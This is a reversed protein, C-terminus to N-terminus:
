RIQAVYELAATNDPATFSLPTQLQWRIRNVCRDYGAPAGCAESVPLYTWTAGGDNSYQLAATMGAPLTTAASGVQLQVAPALTDVLAVGAANSTGGNTITIRYRLVTGPGQSGALSASDALRVTRGITLSPRVVTVTLRGNDSNTPGAVSRATFVLTDRTGFPVNRVAYTVTVVVSDGAALNALRASDPNSGQTVGSGAISVTTLATDPLRRALLDFNDSGSGTNRVTFTVTYNTGHSPLRSAVGSDPTVSISFGTVTLTLRGNDTSSPSAVSRATFTLTDKTGASGAVNYTVTVTATAVPAMSAHRASDPNAGQTVGSGTISVITLATGPLKTTLLDYSDNANGLNQVTFSVTYNTGPLRSVATAPPTVAVGYGPLVVQVLAEDYHVQAGGNATVSAGVLAGFLNAGGSLSIPHTPAYVSFYASGGSITWTSTNTGCAWLGLQPAKSSTNLIGGASINLTNSIWIEVQEGGGNVTLTAQGSMSVSSFYYRTPPANLTLTASSSLSLVGTTANYQVGNGTPIYAAPTYGGSPCPPALMTPFSPAGQTVTGTVGSSGTVAGHATVNGWVPRSGLSMNGNAALNANSDATAASYPGLDSNYSDVRTGAAGLTLGGQSFIAWQLVSNQAAAPSVFALGLCALLVIKTM